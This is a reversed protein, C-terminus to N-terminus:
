NVRGESVSAELLQHEYQQKYWGNNNILQKHTGEEVVKGDELVLILDAHKVASLRHTSIFTTKGGRESRINEIIKAETKGDVASM